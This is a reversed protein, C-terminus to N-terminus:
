LSGARVGQGGSQLLARRRAVKLRTHIKSVPVNAILALYKAPSSESWTVFVNYRASLMELNGDVDLSQGRDEFIFRSMLHASTAQRMITGSFNSAIYDPDLSGSLDMFRSVEKFEPESLNKAKGSTPPFAEALLSGSLLAIVQIKTEGGAFGSSLIVVCLSKNQRSGFYQITLFADDTGGFWDVATIQAM